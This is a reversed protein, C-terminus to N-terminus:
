AAAPRIERAPWRWRHDLDVELWGLSRRLENIEDVAREAAALEVRRRVHGSDDFTEHELCQVRTVVATKEAPSMRSSSGFDTGM